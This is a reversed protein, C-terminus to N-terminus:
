IPMDKEMKQHKDSEDPKEPDPKLYPRLVIAHKRLKEAAAEATPASKILNTIEEVSMLNNIQVAMVKLSQGVLDYQAALLRFRDCWDNYGSEQQETLDKFIRDWRASLEDLTLGLKNAITIDSIGISRWKVIYEDDQTM